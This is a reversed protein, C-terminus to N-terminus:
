KLSNKIRNYLTLCLLLNILALLGGCLPLVAAASFICVLAAGTFYHLDPQVLLRPRKEGMPGDYHREQGVLPAMVGAYEALITLFAALLLLENQVASFAM